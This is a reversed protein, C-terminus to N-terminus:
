GGAARDENVQQWYASFDSDGGPDNPGQEGIVRKARHYCAWLFAIWIGATAIARMKSVTFGGSGASSPLACWPQINDIPLAIPGSGNGTSTGCSDGPNGWGVVLNKIVAPGALVYSWPAQGGVQAMFGAWSAALAPPVFAWKLACKVPIYVWTFPNLSIGSALCSRGNKTPDPSPDEADTGTGTGTSPSASPDPNSTDTGTGTGTVTKSIPAAYLVGNPDDSTRGGTVYGVGLHSGVPCDPLPTISDVHPGPLIPLPDGTVTAVLGGANICDGHPTLSLASNPHPDTWWAYLTVPGGSTMEVFRREVPWESPGCMTPILSGYTDAHEVQVSENITGDPAECRRIIDVDHGTNSGWEQLYPNANLTAWDGVIKAPAPPVYTGGYCNWRWYNAFVAFCQGSNAPDSVQTRNDGNAGWTWHLVHKNLEYGIGVGALFFGGGELVTAAGEFAFPLSGSQAAVAGTGGLSAIGTGTVGVLDAHGQLWQQWYAEDQATPTPTPSPAPTPDAHAVPGAVSVLLVALAAAARGRRTTM